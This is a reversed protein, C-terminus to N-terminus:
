SNPVTKAYLFLYFLLFTFFSINGVLVRSSARPSVEPAEDALRPQQCRDADEDAADDVELIGCGVTEVVTEHAAVGGDVEPEVVEPGM